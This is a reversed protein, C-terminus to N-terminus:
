AREGPLLETAVPTLHREFARWWHILQEPLPRASGYDNAGSPMASLAPDGMLHVLASRATLLDVLQDQLMRATPLPRTEPARSALDHWPAFLVRDRLYMWSRILHSGASDPALDPLTKDEGECPPNLLVIAGLRAGEQRQMLAAVAASRGVTVLDFRSWGLADALDFMRAAVAELREAGKGDSAGHGPLDPAVAHVGVGAGGIIADVRAASAGLDHLVLVPAGGAAGVQRVHMDAEALVVFDSYPGRVPHPNPPSISAVPGPDRDVFAQFAAPVDGFSEVVQTTVCKHMPPYHGVYRATVDPRAVILLTRCSLHKLDPAIDYGLVAGYSGRYRDGARFIDLASADIGEVSQLWRIRAATGRRFWPYFVLQDRLRSWMEALHGGDWRPEIPLLYHDAFDARTGADTLLIGNAILAHLRGPYRIAFRVAIIAGTHTGYISPRDLGLADLFGALADVYHDIWTDGFQAPLADSLGFGPTDPALVLYRGALERMLGVHEESTRPSQHLLVIAPGKGAWRYGIRRDGVYLCARRIAEPMKIRWM